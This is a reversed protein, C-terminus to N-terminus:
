RDLDDYMWAKDIENEFVSNLTDVFRNLTEADYEGLVELVLDVVEADHPGPNGMQPDTM